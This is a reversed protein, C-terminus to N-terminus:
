TRYCQGGHSSISAHWREETGGGNLHNHLDHKTTTPLQLQDWSTATATQTDSPYYQLRKFRPNTPLRFSPPLSHVNHQPQLIFCVHSTRSLPPLSLVNRRPVFLCSVATFSLVLVPFSPKISNKSSRIASEHQANRMTLVRARTPVKPHPGSATSAFSLSSTTVSIVVEHICVQLITM